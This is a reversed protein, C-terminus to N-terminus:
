AAFGPESLGYVEDAVNMLLVLCHTGNEPMCLVLRRENVNEMEGILLFVNKVVKCSLSLLQINM